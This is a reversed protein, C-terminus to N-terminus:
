VEEEVTHQESLARSRLDSSRPADLRLWVGCDNCWKAGRELLNHCRPCGPRPDLDSAEYLEADTWKSGDRGM